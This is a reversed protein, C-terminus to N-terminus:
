RVGVLKHLQPLFRANRLSPYNRSVVFISGLDSLHSEPTTRHAIWVPQVYMPVVPFTEAILAIFELDHVDACPIKLCIDVNGRMVLWGNIIEALAKFDSEQGASPPKPSLTLHDVMMLWPKSVSGQTEVAVLFKEKRLSTVLQGLEFLAPNGGSLTVYPAPPLYKIRDLITSISLRESNAQIREPFVSDPTDCWACRYDCGAFRIFHSVAGALAGEGQITPGFIETVRFTKEQVLQLPKSM